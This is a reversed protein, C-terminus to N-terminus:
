RRRNASGNVQIEKVVFRWRISSSWRIFFPLQDEDIRQAHAASFGKSNLWTTKIM